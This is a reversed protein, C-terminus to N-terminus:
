TVTSKLYFRGCQPISKKFKWHGFYPERVHSFCTKWRNEEITEIFRTVDETVFGGGM